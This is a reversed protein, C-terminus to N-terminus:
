DHSTAEMVFRAFERQKNVFLRVMAPCDTTTWENEQRVDAVNEMGEQLALELQRLLKEFVPKVQQIYIM